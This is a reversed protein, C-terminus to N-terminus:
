TPQDLFRGSMFSAVGTFSVDKGLHIKTHGYIEPLRSLKLHPGVSACRARFIPERYFFTIAGQILEVVAFHVRYVFSFFPSLFGPVPLNAKMVAQATKRLASYFPTEGRRIKLLFGSM